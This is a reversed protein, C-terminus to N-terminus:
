SLFHLLVSFASDAEGKNQLLDRTGESPVALRGASHSGGRYFFRSSILKDRKQFM